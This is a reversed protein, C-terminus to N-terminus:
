LPYRMLIVRLTAVPRRFSALQGPEWDAKSPDQAHGQKCRSTERALDQEAFGLAMHQRDNGGFIPPAREDTGVLTERRCRLEGFNNGAQV